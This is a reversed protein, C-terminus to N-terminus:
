VSTLHGEQVEKQKAKRSADKELFRVEAGCVWAVLPTFGVLIVCAVDEKPPFALSNCQYAMHRTQMGVAVVAVRRRWSPLDSEEGIGKIKV